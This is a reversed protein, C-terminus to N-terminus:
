QADSAIILSQGYKVKDTHMQDYLVLEHMNSIPLGPGAEHSLYQNLGYKFENFIGGLETIGVEATNGLTDTEVLTAGAAKLDDLAKQFAPTVDGSAYGLRAGKLAGLSAR